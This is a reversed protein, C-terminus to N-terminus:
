DVDDRATAPRDCGERSRRSTSNNNNTTITKPNGGFDAQIPYNGGWDTSKATRGENNRDLPLRVLHRAAVQATELDM